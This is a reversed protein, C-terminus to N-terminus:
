ASLHRLSGFSLHLIQCNSCTLYSATPGQIEFDTRLTLPNSHPKSLRLLLLQCLNVSLAKWLNVTCVARYVAHAM